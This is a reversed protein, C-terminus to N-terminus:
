ALPIMAGFVGTHRRPQFSHRGAYSTGSSVVLASAAAFPSTGFMGGGGSAITATCCWNSPSGLGTRLSASVSGGGGGCYTGAGVRGSCPSECGGDAGGAARVLAGGPTAPAFTGGGCGM